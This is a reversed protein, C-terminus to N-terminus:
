STLYFFNLLKFIIEILNNRMTIYNTLFKYNDFKIFKVVFRCKKATKRM